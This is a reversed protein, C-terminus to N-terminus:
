NHRPHPDTLARILYGDNAPGLGGDTALLLAPMDAAEAPPVIAVMAAAAVIMAAARCHWSGLARPTPPPHMLRRRDKPIKALDPTVRRGSCSWTVQAASM